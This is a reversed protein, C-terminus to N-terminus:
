ANPKKILGLRDRKLEKRIERKYDDSEYEEQRRKAREKAKADKEFEYAAKAGYVELFIDRTNGFPQAFDRIHDTLYKQNDIKGDKKKYIKMDACFRCVEKVAEENKLVTEYDCYKAGTDCKASEFM